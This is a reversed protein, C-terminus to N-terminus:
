LINKTELFFKFDFTEIEIIDSILISANPKQKGTIAKVRRKSRVSKHRQISFIDQLCSQTKKEIWKALTQRKILTNLRNLYLTILSLTPNIDAM